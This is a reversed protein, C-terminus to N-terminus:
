QLDNQISQIAKDKNYKCLIKIEADIELKDFRPSGKYNIKNLKGIRAWYDVTSVGINLYEKVQSRTLYRLNTIGKQTTSFITSEKETLFEKMAAKVENKILDAFQEENYVMSLSKCLKIMQGGM